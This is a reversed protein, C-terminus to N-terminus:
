DDCSITLCQHTYRKMWQPLSRKAAVKIVSVHDPNLTEMSKFKFCEHVHLQGVISYAGSIWCRYFGGGAISM